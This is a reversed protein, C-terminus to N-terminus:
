MKPWLKGILQNKLRLYNFFQPLMISTKGEEQEKKGEKTKNEKADEGGSVGGGGEWM